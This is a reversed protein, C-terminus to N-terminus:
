SSSATMSSGESPSCASAINRASRSFEFSTPNFPFRPCLQRLRVPEVRAVVLPMADAIQLAHDPVEPFHSALEARYKQADTEAHRRHRMRLGARQGMHREEGPLVGHEGTAEDDASDRKARYVLVERRM